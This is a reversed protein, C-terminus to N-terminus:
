TRSRKALSRTPPASIRLSAAAASLSTSRSSSFHTRTTADSTASPTPTRTASSSHGSARTRSSARSATETIAPDSACLPSRTTPPTTAGTIRTRSAPAPGAALSRAACTSQLSVSFESLAHATAACPPTAANSLTQVSWRALPPSSTHAAHRTSLLRAPTSSILFYMTASAPATGTSTDSECLAVSSAACIWAISSRAAMAVTSLETLSATIWSPATSDRTWASSGLEGREEFARSTPSRAMSASQKEHGPEVSRSMAAPKRSRTRKRRRLPSLVRCCQARLAACRRHWTDSSGLFAMPSAPNMGSSTVTRRAALDGSACSIAASASQAMTDTCRLRFRKTWSSRLTDWTSCSNLGSSSFVEGAAFRNKSDVSICRASLLEPRLFIMDESCTLFRSFSASVLTGSALRTTFFSPLLLSLLMKWPM